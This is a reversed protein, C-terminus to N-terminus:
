GLTTSTSALPSQSGEEGNFVPVVAKVIHQIEKVREQLRMVHTVLDNRKGGGGGTGGTRKDYTGIREATENMRREMDSSMVTYAEKRAQHGRFVAQVSTAAAEMEGEIQEQMKNHAKKRGSMGRAVSQIKTAKQIMDQEM